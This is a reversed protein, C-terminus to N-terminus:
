DIRGNEDKKKDEYPGTITRRIEAACEELEGCYNKLSNYSVPVCRKCFAYLIYNLDGNAEVHAAWMESVILDLQKRREQKIYPIIIV